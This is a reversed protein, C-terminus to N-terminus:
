LFNCTLELLQLLQLTTLLSIQIGLMLMHNKKKLILPSILTYIMMEFVTM